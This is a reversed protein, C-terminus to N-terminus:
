IMAKEIVHIMHGLFKLIMSLINNQQETSAGSPKFFMPWTVRGHAKWFTYQLLLLFKSFLLPNFYNPERDNIQATGIYM